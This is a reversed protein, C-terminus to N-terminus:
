LLLGAREAAAQPQEGVVLGQGYTHRAARDLVELLVAVRRGVEIGERGLRVPELVDDLVDQRKGLVPEVHGIESLRSGSTRPAALRRRDRDPDLPAGALRGDGDRGERHSVGGAHALPSNFGWAREPVRVQVTRTQRNRWERWFRPLAIGARSSRGFRSRP